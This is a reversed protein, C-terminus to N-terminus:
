HSFKIISESLLNYIELMDKEDNLMERHIDLIKNDNRVAPGTQAAIPSRHRIKEATEKILPFFVEFPLSYKKSLQYALTYMHNSFNNAFVGCVHLALRQKSNIISVNKSFMKAFELLNEENQITNAEIFVPTDTINVKRFKSFSQFPYYVGFNIFRNNFIDISTSGSTHVVLGKVYPLKHIVSGIADDKVCIMYIDADTLTDNINDTFCSNFEKALVSAASATRNVIQKITHGSAAFIESLNTAINGAGIFVINM